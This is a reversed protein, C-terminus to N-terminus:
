SLNFIIKFFEDLFVATTVSDNKGMYTSFIGM